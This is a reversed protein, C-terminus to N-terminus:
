SVYEAEKNSGNQGAFVSNNGIFKKPMGGVGKMVNLTEVLVRMNQKVNVM